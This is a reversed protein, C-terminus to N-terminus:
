KSKSTEKSYCPRCLPMYKDGAGLLVLDSNDDIRYSFIASNGCQMCISHLKTIYESIAMLQPMVGFPQGKYDMDLGAVIVRKGKNALLTCTTILDADFFQAEDIAIVKADGSLNLIELASHVGTSNEEKRNHSVIKDNAYRNEMAPKFIALPQKAIQARRIRRILEETKGSFMPGTIVEIWGVNQGPQILNEIFM